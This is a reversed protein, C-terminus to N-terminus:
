NGLWPQLVCDARSNVWLQLSFLQIWVKRLTIQSIHFAILRTWSKFEPRQTHIRRRYGNCWQYQFEYLNESRKPRCLILHSCVKATTFAIHVVLWLLWGIFRPGNFFPYCLFWTGLFLVKISPIFILTVEAPAFTQSCPM